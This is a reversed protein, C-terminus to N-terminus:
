LCLHQISVKFPPIAICCDKRNGNQESVHEYEFTSRKGQYTCTKKVVETRVECLGPTECQETCQHGNECFHHNLFHNRPELDHFHNASACNRNCGPMTCKAPCMKEHCAHQEHDGLEIPTVCPNRCAPLSCKEVCMHQRSNCKHEGEHRAKLSCNKNCNSTKGAYSCDMGCTHAKQKCDHPGEHGALDNCGDVQSELIFSASADVNDNSCYTCMQMCRHDGKCSHDKPHSHELICRLFCRGCKSGCLSLQQQLDALM